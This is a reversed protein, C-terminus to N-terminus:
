TARDAQSLDTSIVVNCYTYQEQSMKHVPKFCATPVYNYKIIRQTRDFQIDEIM